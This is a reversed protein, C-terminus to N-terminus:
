PVQIHLTIMSKRAVQSIVVEAAVVPTITMAKTTQGEAVERAAEEEAIKEEVEILMTEEMGQQHSTIMLSSNMMMSPRWYIKILSMQLNMKLNHWIENSIRKMKKRKIQILLSQVGM